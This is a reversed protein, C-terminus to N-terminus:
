EDDREHVAFVPVDQDDSDDERAVGAPAAGGVIARLHKRQEEARRTIKDQEYKLMRRRFAIIEETGAPRRNRQTIVAAIRRRETETLGKLEEAHEGPVKIWRNRVMAWIWSKELMEMRTDVYMDQVLPADLETCWYTEGLNSIGQPGVHSRGGRATPVATLAMVGPNTASWRRQPQDGLLERSKALLDDPAASKGQRRTAKHARRYEEAFDCLEGYEWIAHKSPEWDPDMERVKKREKTAGDLADIFEQHM